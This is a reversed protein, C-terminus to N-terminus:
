HASTDPQAQTYGAPVDFLSADLRDRSYSTVETTMDMLSGAVPAPQPPANAGSSGSANSSESQQQQQQKKKGFLGGLGKTIADRTSTPTSNDSSSPQSSQSQPPPAQQTSGQGTSGQGSANQGGQGTASMGMSTYQLLPMGDMKIANKRFEDAAQSMQPNSMGISGPLWDMEKSMRVYFQRVEDYGPITGYWADATMWTSANSKELDAETKPDTSKFQMDLRMKMEKAPVNLITRTQGTAQVDFKPVMTVNQADGHKAAPKAQEEKIKERAQEIQQKLQDFTQIWYIKKAPDVHIFRKGDLDIIEIKGTPDETRLRNGRVMTTSLQPETAQRASKSFVGLTKTMGALAGGTIKSQQTYKFDARSSGVALITVALVTVVSRLRM